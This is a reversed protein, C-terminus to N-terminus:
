SALLSIQQTQYCCNNTVQETDTFTSTINLMVCVKTVCQKQTTKLRRGVVAGGHGHWCCSTGVDDCDWLSALGRKTVITQDM